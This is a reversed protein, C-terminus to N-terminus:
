GVQRSRNSRTRRVSRRLRRRHRFRHSLHAKGPWRKTDEGDSDHYGDHATSSRGGDGRRAAVTRLVPSRRHPGAADLLGDGQSAGQVRDRSGADVEWGSAGNGRDVHVGALLHGATLRQPSEIGM